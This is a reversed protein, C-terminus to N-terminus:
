NEAPLPPPPPELLAEFAAAELAPAFLFGQFADCGAARLHDRQAETEVGEAVISLKLARGMQIIADVIGADSADEPLGKVFSRDIKLRGIPLRKLYALSSYGTGFDDIALKVGLQALARLRLLAEQADRILISETLELELLAPPLGAERLAHAVGDVFGPQQFQLASVNVAVELHHGARHWAAAQRVAQRLVWEGLPVIFGSAEAVPIFQAPAVDGLEADRWRLLAEAGAIRRAALEVRPQFHLRFGDRALAQRMAHDLKMSSRLEGESAARAGRHFRFGARGAEKAERMATDASSILAEASDGDRPYLAIGMSATLTFSMGDLHFPRQLAELTRQATAQAGTADSPHLLAVFEDGSLRAVTDAQRLCATIRQAVEVLVRDGCAHGLTDNIHKFRDLDVFLLAFPTGDRRGTALAQEIRDNLRRRNPLGTAADNHSLREIRQSSEIRETIDRFSFVRGIPRGRTCLPQTVRELTRGSHLRLLDSAQVMTAGDLAVLRQVYTSPDVVSRRMWELLAADDRVQMLDDPVGWLSAFRRNCNRVRGSLDTVLIGDATSELTAQLESLALDLATQAAVAESRDQVSVVFLESGDAQATRRVRRTVTATSGDFRRVFTDSEIGQSTGDAVESWFCLDEPTAALDLIERGVLQGIATGLLAAAAANAAVIRLTAADVLWVALPMAEIMAVADASPPPAAGARVALPSRASM